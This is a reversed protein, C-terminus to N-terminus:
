NALLEHEQKVAEIERLFQKYLLPALEHYGAHLHNELRSCAEQLRPTGCYSIGGQLRRVVTEFKEWEKKQYSLELAELEIDLDIIFISLMKKALEINGNFMEAGLSLDIIKGSLVSWDTVDNAAIPVEINDTKRPVLANLIDLARAKYIPKILVANMGAALCRAKDQNDALATLAVIPVRQNLSEKNQRIWQTTQYGDLDPLGVDMFILDFYHKKAYEISTKANCAVTVQCDIENLIIKTVEATFAHDEVLLIQLANTSSVPM